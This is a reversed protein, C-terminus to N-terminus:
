FLFPTPTDEGDLDDLWPLEARSQEGEKMLGALRALLLPQRPAAQADAVPQGATPIPAKNETM